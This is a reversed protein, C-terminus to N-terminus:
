SGHPQSRGGGSIPFPRSPAALRKVALMPLRQARVGYRKAVIRYAFGVNSRGGQSEAVTFGTPGRNAVYLGKSDGEPTLQVIYPSESDIVNAFKPDLAVFASGGSLSAEGNDEITPQTEVPAYEVVRRAPIGNVICGNNCTGQTYLLGDITVNGQDTVRMKVIGQSTADFLDAGSPLNSSGAELPLGSGNLPTVFAGTNGFVVGSHVQGPVVLVGSSYVDLVDGAPGVARIIANASSGSYNLSLLPATANAGQNGVIASGYQAFAYVANASAGYAFAHLGDSAANGDALVGAGNNDHTSSTNRGAVGYGPASSSQGYVGSGVSASFGEVGNYAASRGTVGAGNTSLGTVGSDLNGSTSLDEGLVGAKGSPKGASKFNTQGHLANGRSSVGKIADGNGTNNWELCPTSLACSMAGIIAARVQGISSAALIAAVIATALLFRTM